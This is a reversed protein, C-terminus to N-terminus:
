QSRQRGRRCSEYVLGAPAGASGTILDWIKSISKEKLAFKVKVTVTRLFCVINQAKSRRPDTLEYIFQGRDCLYDRKRKLKPNSEWVGGRYHHIRSNPVIAIDYGHYRAKRCFDIEEFFSSYIPNLLGTNEFVARKVVMCSGEVWDVPILDRATDVNRLETLYKSLATTTWSNFEESDYNLQVPGLIGINPNSNSIKIIHDLWDIKVKTDPNLLVIYEAGLKLAHQIGINNGTAFGYNCPNKIITIRDSYQSAITLSEDTSANDVLLISINQNIVGLLSDLCRRLWRVGNYNLLIVVIM